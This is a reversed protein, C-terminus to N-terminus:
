VSTYDDFFRIHGRRCEHNVVTAPLDPHVSVFHLLQIMYDCALNLFLGLDLLTGVTICEKKPFEPFAVMFEKRTVDNTFPSAEKCFGM